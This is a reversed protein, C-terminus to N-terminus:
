KLPITRIDEWGYAIEIYKDGGIEIAQEGVRMARMREYFKCAPNNKLVWVLMSEIKHSLLYNVVLNLLNTGIHKRQFDKLVYIAMLEGLFKEPQILGIFPNSKELSALTFGVIEGYTTEVVYIIKKDNKKNYLERWRELKDKYSLNQLYDGSILGSYTTKWTDISVKVIQSMDLIKAERYKMM